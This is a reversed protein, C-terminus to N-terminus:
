ALRKSRGAMKRRIVVVKLGTLQVIEVRALLGSHLILLSQFQISPQAHRGYVGVLKAGCYSGFEAM